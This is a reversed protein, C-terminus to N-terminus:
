HGVLDTMLELHMYKFFFFLQCAIGGFISQFITQENLVFTLIKYVMEMTVYM